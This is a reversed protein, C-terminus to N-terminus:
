LRRDREAVFKPMAWPSWKPQRKERRLEEWEGVSVVACLRFEYPPLELKALEKAAAKDPATWEYRTGDKRAIPQELGIVPDPLLAVWRITM